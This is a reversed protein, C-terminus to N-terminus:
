EQALSFFFGVITAFHWFLRCLRSCQNFDFLSHFQTTAHLGIHLSNDILAFFWTDINSAIQSARFSFYLSISCKTLFLKYIKIFFSWFVQVYIMIKFTKVNKSHVGGEKSKRFCIWLLVLKVTQFLCFVFSKWQFHKCSVNQSWM